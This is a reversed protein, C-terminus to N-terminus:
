GHLPHIHESSETKVDTQPEKPSDEPIARFSHSSRLSRGEQGRRMKRGGSHGLQDGVKTVLEPDLHSDATEM